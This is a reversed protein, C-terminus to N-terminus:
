KTSIKKKKKEFDLISLNHGFFTHMHKVNKLTNTLFDRIKKKIFWNDLLIGETFYNVLKVFKFLFLFFFYIIKCHFVNKFSNM